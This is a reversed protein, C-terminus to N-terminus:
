RARLLGGTVSAAAIEARGVTCFSEANGSVAGKQALNARARAELKAKEAKNDVFDEIEQESYGQGKAARKLSSLFMLGKLKRASIEDCQKEIELAMGVAILGNTVQANDRLAPRASASFAITFALILATGAIMSTKRM